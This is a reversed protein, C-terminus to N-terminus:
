WASGMLCFPNQDAPKNLPLQDHDVQKGEVYLFM